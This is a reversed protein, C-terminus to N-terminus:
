RADAVEPSAFWSRLSGDDVPIALLSFPEPLELEAKPPPPPQPPNTVKVEGLAVRQFDRAVTSRMAEVALDIERAYRIHVGDRLRGLTVDLLATWQREPREHARGALAQALAVVARDREDRDAVRLQVPVRPAKPGALAGRKFGGGEPFLLAIADRLGEADGAVFAAEGLLALGAASSRAKPDDALAQAVARATAVNGAALARQGLALLAAEEAGKIAFPALKERDPARRALTQLALERMPETGADSGPMAFARALADLLEDERGLRSLALARMWLSFRPPKGETLKVVDAFRGAEYLAQAGRDLVIPQPLEAALAAFGERPDAGAELRLFRWYPRLEAPLQEVELARPEVPKGARFQLAAREYALLAATRPQQALGLILANTLQAPEDNGSGPWAPPRGCSFVPPEVLLLENPWKEKEDNWYLAKSPNPNQLAFSFFGPRLLDRWITRSTAAAKGLRVRRAAEVRVLQRMPSPQTLAPLPACTALALLDDFLMREEGATRDELLERKLLGLERQWFLQAFTAVFLAIV